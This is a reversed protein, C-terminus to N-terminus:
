YLVQSNVSTCFIIAVAQFRKSQKLFKRLHWSQKSLSLKSKNSTQRVLEIAQIPLEALSKLSKVGTTEKARQIYM